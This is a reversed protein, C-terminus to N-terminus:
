SRSTARLFLYSGVLKKRRLAFMEGVTHVAERYVSRLLVPQRWLTELLEKLRVASHAVRMRNSVFNEPVEVTLIQKM